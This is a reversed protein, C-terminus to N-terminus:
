LAATLISTYPPRDEGWTKLYFWLLAYGFVALLGFVQDKGRMAPIISPILITIAPVTLMERTRGAVIGFDLVLFFLATGYVYVPILYENLPWARILPRYFSLFVLSLMLHLIYTGGFVRIGRLDERMAYKVLRSTEPVGASSVLEAVLLGIGGALSGVIAVVLAIPMIKLNPLWRILFLPLAIAALGHFLTGALISLLFKRFSGQQIFTISLLVFTAAMGSRAGSLDKWFWEDAFYILFSLILIPSTKSFVYLKLSVSLVAWMFVFVTYSGTLERVLYALAAYGSEIPTGEDVQYILGNFDSLTDINYFIDKYSFYDAGVGYRLGLMATMCLLAYCVLLNPAIFHRSRSVLYAAMLLLLVAVYPMM